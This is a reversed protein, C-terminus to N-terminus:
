QAYTFGQIIALNNTISIQYTTSPEIDPAEGDMWKVTQPLMLTCGSDSTTFEITYINLININTPEKLTITLLTVPNIWKYYDNPNISLTSSTEEIEIMRTNYYGVTLDSNMGLVGNNYETLFAGNLGDVGKIGQKGQTGTDGREGKDGKLDASSTGSASTITLTTGNWSHTASIGNTGDKGAVGQEGKEGKEGQKGKFRGSLWAEGLAVTIANSLESKDLKNDLQETYDPFEFVAGNIEISKVTPKM